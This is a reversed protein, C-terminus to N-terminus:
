PTGRLFRVIRTSVAISLTAGVVVDSTWHAHRYVRQAAVLSAVGYALGAAWPQGTEEAIGAALAFAHTAHASPMSGWEGQPHLPRFRWPDDTSDPRHRAVVVRIAGGALDAGAYGAAIRLAARAIPWKGFIAPMATAAVLAPVIYQARGFPDVDDAIHDLTRSRHTMMLANVSRDLTLAVGTLAGADIWFAAGNPAIPDQARTAFPALSLAVALRLVRRSRIIATKV